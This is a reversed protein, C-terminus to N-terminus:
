RSRRCGRWRLVRVVRRGHRTTEVVRLTFTRGPMAITLARLHRGRRLVLRRHGLYISARVVGHRADPLKITLRRPCAPTSHSTTTGTPGGSSPDGPAPAAPPGAALRYGEVTTGTPLFLM